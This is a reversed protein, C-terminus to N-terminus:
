KLRRTSAPGLNGEVASCIREDKSLSMVFPNIIRDPSAAIVIYYPRAVALTAGVLKLIDHSSIGNIKLDM